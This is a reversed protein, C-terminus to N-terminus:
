CKSFNTLDRRAVRPTVNSLENVILRHINENSASTPVLNQRNLYFLDSQFDVITFYPHRILASRDVPCLSRINSEVCFLKLQFEFRLKQPLFYLWRTHFIENNIEVPHLKRFSNTKPSRAVVCIIITGDTIRIL